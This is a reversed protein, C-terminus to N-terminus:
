FDQFDDETFPIVKDPRIEKTQEVLQVKPATAVPRTANAIQPTQYQGNNNRNNTGAVLAVLDGVYENLNGAQANMEESASASEEANAANMQVIKDMESIALNVQKIGDSQESSAEAIESVLLGVKESSEAVTKFANNTKEVLDSGDSVKKVTGEILEATNKAADSARLALNRVEDAVVAFGAGAEGARAAEVAANLALLNTQFAIEDITKIIKSTEESASSIEGMSGTLEVMSENADKVVKNSEKMLSDAHKANEANKNTMSSMEEMSSSTEEISAAQQSTGDALSQSSSSVQSSAAAVQSSGEELGDIVRNIPKTISRSIFLGMITSLILGIFVCILSELKTTQSVEISEKIALKIESKAGDEVGGLINVMKGGIKEAEKDLTNMKMDLSSIKKRTQIFKSASIQFKNNHIDDIKKVMSKLAPITLAPVIGEDTEAGKLLADILEDFEIVTKDYKTKIIDLEDSELGQAIEEITIRSMALTTKIEMAMDIWMSERKLIQAASNGANMKMRIRDKIKKEFREALVVIEEFDKEFKGMVAESEELAKYEILKLDYISKIKVSFEDNHFKDATQVINKLKENKAPYIIGESTKAGNIIAGTYLDFSAVTSEHEKWITELTEKNNAEILEMSLLLDNMVSLKMEMAADVLPVSEVLDNQKESITNIGLYGILGVIIVISSIGLFGSIIKTSLKMRKFM